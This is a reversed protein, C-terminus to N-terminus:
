SLSLSLSPSLSLSLSLSPPIHHTFSHSLPSLSHTLSHTLSLSLSSLPPYFYFHCYLRALSVLHFSLRTPTLSAAPPPCLFLCPPQVFLSRTHSFLLALPIPISDM